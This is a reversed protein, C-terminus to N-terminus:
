PLKGFLVSWLTLLMGKDVSQKENPM